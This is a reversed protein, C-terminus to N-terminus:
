EGDALHLRGGILGVIREVCEEVSLTSTDLSLDPSVPVDYPASVGPYDPLEGAEARAYAGTQERVKLTDLPASLAIELLTGRRRGAPRARARGRESGRLRLPLDAGSREHLARCGRRPSPERLAGGRHVGPGQQHDKAVRSRRSRVAWKQDFQGQPGTPATGQEAGKCAAVLCVGMILIRTMAILIM